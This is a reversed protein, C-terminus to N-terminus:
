EMGMSKKIELISKDNGTQISDPNIERNIADIECVLAMLHKIHVTFFSCAYEEIYRPQITAQNRDKDLAFDSLLEGKTLHALESLRGYNEKLNIPLVAVNPTKNEDYIGKRIQIVRALAEMHQRLIVSAGWYYGSSILKETLVVSQLLGSTISIRQSVSGLVAGANGNGQVIQKSLIECVKVYADWLGGYKAYSEQAVADAMRELVVRLSPIENDQKSQSM